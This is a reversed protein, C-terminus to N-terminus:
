GARTTWMEVPRSMAQRIFALRVEAFALEAQTHRKCRYRAKSSMGELTEYAAAVAPFRRRVAARRGDHNKSAPENLHLLAAELEHLATYFLVTMSWEPTSCQSGGIAQYFAWNREAQTYHEAATLPPM